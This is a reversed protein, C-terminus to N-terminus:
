PPARLGEALALLACANQTVVDAYVSEPLREAGALGRELGDIARRFWEGGGPLRAALWSQLFWSDLPTSEGAWRPHEPSEVCAALIRPALPDGGPGARVWRAIAEAVRFDGCDLRDIPGETVLDRVPKGFGAGLGEAFVADIAVTTLGRTWGQFAGYAVARQLSGLGARLSTDDEPRHAIALAMCGAATAELAPKPDARLGTEMAAFAGGRATAQRAKLRDIARALAAELGEVRVGMARARALAATAIADSAARRVEPDPDEGGPARDFSGDERQLGLLARALRVVLDRARDLRDAPIAPAKPPPEWTFARITAGASLGAALLAVALLAGRSRGARAGAPTGDSSAPPV